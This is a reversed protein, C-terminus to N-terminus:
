LPDLGILAVELEELLVQKQVAHQDAVEQKLPSLHHQISPVAFRSAGMASANM